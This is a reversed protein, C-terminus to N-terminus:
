ADYEIDRYAYDKDQKRDEEAPRHKRRTGTSCVFSVRLLGTSDYQTKGIMAFEFHRFSPVTVRIEPSMLQAASRSHVSRGIGIM